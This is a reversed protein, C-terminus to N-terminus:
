RARFIFSILQNLLSTVLSLPVTMMVAFVRFTTLSCRSKVSCRSTLVQLRCSCMPTNVACLLTTRWMIQLHLRPRQHNFVHGHMQPRLQESSVVSHMVLLLFVGVECVQIAGHCLLCLLCCFVPASIHVSKTDQAQVYPGCLHFIVSFFSFAHICVKGYSRAHYSQSCCLLEAHWEFTYSSKFHGSLTPMKEYIHPWLVFCVWPLGM